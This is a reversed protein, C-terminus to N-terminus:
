FIFIAGSVMTEIIESSYSFAIDVRVRSSQVGLVTGLGLTFFDVAKEKPFAHRLQSNVENAYMVGSPQRLYGARVHLSQINYSLFPLKKSKPTIGYEVGASFQWGDSIVMDPAGDPDANTLTNDDQILNREGNSKNDSLAHAIKSYRIYQLDVGTTLRKFDRYSLGFGIVDPLDCAIKESEIFAPFAVSPNNDQGRVSYAPAIINIDLDFQPRILYTFGSTLQKNIKYLLGASIGPRWESEDVSRILYLNEAQLRNQLCDQNTNLTHDSAFYEQESLHYEFGTLRFAAGFHLSNSLRFAMAFANDIVDFKLQTQRAPFNQQLVEAPQQDISSFQLIQPAVISFRKDVVVERFVAVKVFRTPIIVNVMTQDNVFDENEITINGQECSAGPESHNVNRFRHGLSAAPFQFQALGAPNASITTPEGTAAIAVGGMALARASSTLYAVSLNRLNFLNFPRSSQAQSTLPFVFVCVLLITASIAIPHWM